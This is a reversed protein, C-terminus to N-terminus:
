DSIREMSLAEWGEDTNTFVEGEETLGYIFHDADYEDGATVTSIQIFRLETSPPKIDSNLLQSCEWSLKSFAKDKEKITEGLTKNAEVLRHIQKKLGNTEKELQSFKEEAEDRQETRLDLIGEAAALENELRKNEKILEETQVRYSDRQNSLITDRKTQKNISDLCQNIYVKAEELEKTLAEITESKKM